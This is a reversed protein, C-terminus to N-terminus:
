EAKPLDPFRESLVGDMWRFRETLALLSEWEAEQEAQRLREYTSWHMGKPKSPFPNAMGPKGELKRRIKNARRLARDARDERQSGYALEYCHRCAFYRGAGYLHAVRRRCPVGSKVGPCMFWPRRGGYNPETWTIPVPQEVSEWEGGNTRVRYSLTLLNGRTRVTIWNTGSESQWGWPMAGGDREIIGARHLARVDLRRHQEVTDRTNWRYWSGSGYGGM